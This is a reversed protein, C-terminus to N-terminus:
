NNPFDAADVVTCHFQIFGYRYPQAEVRYLYKGTAPWETAGVTADITTPTISANVSASETRTELPGLGSAEATATASISTSDTTVGTLTIEDHITPSIRITKLSLGVEVSQGTGGGTTSSSGSGSVAESGQSTAVVQLSVRQGIAKLTVIEPNFKPWDVVPGGVLAALKTLVDGPAVPSALFFQYNTAKVNNGWFQKLTLIADPLLTSSSQASARLSMSISHDGTFAVAGDEDNDGEGSTEEIVGEVGLLVDPMDINVNGPYSLSYAELVDEIESIDITRNQQRWVDIPKIETRPNGIGTGAATVQQTFPLVVDFREDYEQGQLPPWPPTLKHVSQKISYGNGLDTIESKLFYQSADIDTDQLNATIDLTYEIRVLGGGYEEVTEFDFKHVPLAPAAITVSKVRKNFLDIQQEEHSIEGTSFTPDAIVTGTVTSENVRTPIFARFKPPILNELSKGYVQGPFVAKEKITQIATGDGLKQFETDKTATPAVPATTDLEWIRTVTVVEKNQDTEFGIITKPLTAIDRARVSVRKTFETLQKEERSLEGTGLTPDAATGVVDETFTTIELLAGFDPPVLDRIERTYDNGDFVNPVGLVEQIATGDGLPQFTTDQTATPVPPTVSDLDWTRTVTVVQKDPNTRKGVLVRPFEAPDRFLVSVRKTFETVQQEERRYEGTGLTPDAATGEITEEFTQKELLAAFEPPVNDPRERVYDRGGFVNPVGLVETIATGDGLRTFDVDTTSTPVPPAVTDLDWTRTVTVIQKHEDTKKNVLVIPLDAITRYRVTMRKTQETLQKESRMLEGVGLVPLVATGAVTEGTETTELLAGFDPPARDPREVTYDKGGFLNPVTTVVQEVQGNGWADQEAAIILETLTPLPDGENVITHTRTAIQGDPTRVYEIMETGIPSELYVDTKRREDTREQEVASSVLHGYPGAGNPSSADIDLPNQQVLRTMGLKSRWKLPIVDVLGKFRSTLLPGKNKQLAM